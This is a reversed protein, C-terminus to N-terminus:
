KLLRFGWEVVTVCTDARPGLWEVGLSVDFRLFLFAWLQKKPTITM